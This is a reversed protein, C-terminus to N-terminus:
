APLLIQWQQQMGRILGQQQQQQHGLLVQDLQRQLVLTVSVVALLLM